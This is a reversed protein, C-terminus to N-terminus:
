SAIEAKEIAALGALNQSSDSIVVSGGSVLPTLREALEASHAWPGYILRPAVPSLPHTQPSHHASPPTGLYIDPQVRVAASFDEVGFPLDQHGLGFPDTALLYVESANSATATDLDDTILIRANPSDSLHAGVHWIGLTAMVAQWGTHALLAIDEKEQVGLELLLNAIKNQWNACTAGSLEIRGAHSYITVRPSSPDKQLIADM